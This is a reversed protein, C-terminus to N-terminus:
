FEAMGHFRPPEDSFTVVAVVIGLRTPEIDLEAFARDTGYEPTPVSIIQYVRDPKGYRDELADIRRQFDRIKGM